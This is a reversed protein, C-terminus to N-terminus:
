TFFQLLFYNELSSGLLSLFFIIRFIFDRKIAICWGQLRQVQTKVSLHFIKNQHCSGRLIIEQICITVKYRGIERDSHSRCIAVNLPKTALHTRRLLIIRTVLTVTVVRVVLFRWNHQALFAVRYYIDLHIGQRVSM